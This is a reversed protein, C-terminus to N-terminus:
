WLGGVLLGRSVLMHGRDAWAALWAWRGWSGDRALRRNGAKRAGWGAGPRGARPRIDAGLWSCARAVTALPWKGWWCWASLALVALTFPRVMHGHFLCLILLRVWPLSNGRRLGPESGKIVRFQGRIEQNWIAILVKVTFTLPSPLWMLCLVRNWNKLFSFHSM